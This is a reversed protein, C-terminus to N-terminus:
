FHGKEIYRQLWKKLVELYLENAYIKNLAEFNISKEGIPVLRYDLPDERSSIFEPLLCLLVMFGFPSMKKMDNKITEKDCQGCRLHKLIRNLTTVYTDLLIDFYNVYVDFQMSCIVFQLMDYAPSTWLSQQFDVFKVKKVNGYKDFKFMINGNWFDGHNLVCFSFNEHLIDRYSTMATDKMSPFQKTIHPDMNIYFQNASNNLLAYVMDDPDRLRKMWTLQEMESPIKSSQKLKISLAHFKALTKLALTCQDFDLQKTRDELKYGSLSLDKLLLSDKNDAYYLRPSMRDGDLKYMEELVRTYVLYERSYIGYNLAIKYLPHASPVKLVFTRNFIRNKKQYVVHLRSLESTHSDGVDVIDNKIYRNLISIKSPKDNNLIRCLIDETIHM